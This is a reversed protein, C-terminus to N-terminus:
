SMMGQIMKVDRSEIPLYGRLVEISTFGESARRYLLKLYLVCVASVTLIWAWISHALPSHSIGWLAGGFLVPLGLARVTSNSFIDRSHVPCLLTFRWFIYAAAVFLGAAESGIAGYFGVRPILLYSGGVCIAGQIVSCWMASRPHNMGQVLFYAPLTLINLLWGFALISLAGQALPVSRGLWVRMLPAALISLTVFVPIATLWLLRMSRTFLDRIRTTDLMLLSSAPLLPHMINSFFSRFQTVVRSAIEFFSVLELSGYRSLLIKISPEMLLASLAAAYMYVGFSVLSRTASWSIRPLIMWRVRAIRRVLFVALFWTVVATLASSLLLGTLGLHWTLAFVIGLANLVANCMQVVHALDMRHLGSLLAVYVNGLLTLWIVAAMGLLLVRADSLFVPQIRLWDLIGNQWLFTMGTLTGGVITFILVGAGALQSLRLNDKHPHSESVLKILASSIGLDGLAIYQSPICLLAWLGFQSPGLSHLMFPYVALYVGATVAFRLGGMMSNAALRRSVFQDLAASHPNDSM